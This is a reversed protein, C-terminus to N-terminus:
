QSERGFGNGFIPEVAVPSSPPGAGRMAEFADLRTQQEPNLLPRIATYLQTLLANEGQHAQQHIADLQPQVADVYPQLQAKQADTLLLLRTLLDNLNLKAFLPLGHATIPVVPSVSVTQASVFNAAFMQAAAFLLIPLKTPKM